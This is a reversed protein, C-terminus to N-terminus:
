PQSLFLERCEQPTRADLPPDYVGDPEGKSMLEGQKGGLMLGMAKLGCRGGTQMQRATELACRLHDEAAGKRSKGFLLESHRSLVDPDDDCLLIAAVRDIDNLQEIWDTKVDPRLFTPVQFM